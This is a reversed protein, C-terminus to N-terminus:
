RQWVDRRWAAPTLKGGAQKYVQFGETLTTDVPTGAILAARMAKSALLQAREETIAPATVAASTRAKGLETVTTALMTEINELSVQLEALSKVDSAKAAEGAQWRKYSQLLSKSSPSNALPARGARELELLAEGRVRDRIEQSTDSM